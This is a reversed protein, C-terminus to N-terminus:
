IKIFKKAYIKTKASFTNNDDNDIVIEASAGAHDIKSKLPYKIGANNLLTQLKTIDGDTWLTINKGQAEFEKLMDLTKTNLEEGNFLTGEIDCYVGEINQGKMVEPVNQRINFLFDVIEQDTKNQLAPFYEKADKVMKPMMDPTTMTISGDAEQHAHIAHLLHSVKNLLEKDQIEQLKNGSVIETEQNRLANIADSAKFPLRLFKVNEKTVFLDIQPKRERIQDLSSVAYALIKETDNKSIMNELTDVGTMTARKGSQDKMELNVFASNELGTLDLKQFEKKLSEIWSEAEKDGYFKFTNIIELNNNQSENNNGGGESVDPSRNMKNINEM